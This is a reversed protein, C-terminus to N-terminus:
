FCGKEESCHMSKLQNVDADTVTVLKRSSNGETVLSENNLSISFHYDKLKLEMQLISTISECRKTKSSVSTKQQCRVECSMTPTNNGNETQLESYIHIYHENDPTSCSYVATTHLNGTIKALEESNELPPIMVMAVHTVSVIAM